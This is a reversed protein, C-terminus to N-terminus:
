DDGVDVPAEIRDAASRSGREGRKCIEILHQLV